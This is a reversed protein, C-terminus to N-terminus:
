GPVADRVTVTPAEGAGTVAVAAFADAVTDLDSVLVPGPM